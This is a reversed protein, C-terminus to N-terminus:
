MSIVVFFVEVTFIGVLSVGLVVAALREAKTLDKFMRIVEETSLYNSDASVCIGGNPPSSYDRLLKGIRRTLM